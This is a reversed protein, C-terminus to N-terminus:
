IDDMTLQSLPVKGKSTNGKKDKSMAEAIVIREKKALGSVIKGIDEESLLHVLDENKHLTIHIERLITEFGPNDALMLSQMRAIKEQLQQAQTLPVPDSSM